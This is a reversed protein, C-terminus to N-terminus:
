TTQKQPTKNSRHFPSTRSLSRGRSHPRHQKNNQCRASGYPFLVRRHKRTTFRYIRKAQRNNWRQFMMPAATNENIMCGYMTMNITSRVSTLLRYSACRTEASGPKRLALHSDRTCTQLTLQLILQVFPPSYGGFPTRRTTGVKLM